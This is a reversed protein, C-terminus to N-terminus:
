ERGNEEVIGAFKVISSSDVFKLGLWRCVVHLLKEDESERCQESGAEMEGVGHLNATNGALDWTARHRELVRRGVIPGVSGAFPRRARGGTASRRAQVGVSSVYMRVHDSGELM